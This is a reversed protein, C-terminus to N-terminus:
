REGVRDELSIVAARALSDARDPDGGWVIIFVCGRRLVMSREIPGLGDSLALASDLANRSAVAQGSQEHSRSSYYLSLAEGRRWHLARALELAPGVFEAHVTRNDIPVDITSLVPIDALALLTLVKNTDPRQGRLQVLLSDMRTRYEPSTAAPDIHTQGIAYVMLLSASFSVFFRSLGMM